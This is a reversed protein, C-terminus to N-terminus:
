DTEMRFLDRYVDSRNRGENLRFQQPVGVERTKAVEGTTSRHGFHYGSPSSPDKQPIRRHWKSNPVALM